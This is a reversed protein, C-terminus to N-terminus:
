TKSVIICNCNSSWCCSVPADLRGTFFKKIKRAISIQAPTVNPLKVWPKGPENCVFYTKRNCGSRPDEKPVVPPPKFNPKPPEDGEEVCMVSCKFCSNIILVFCATFEIESRSKQCFYCIIDVFIWFSKLLLRYNGMNSKQLISFM